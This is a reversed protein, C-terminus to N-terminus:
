RTEETKTDPKEARLREAFRVAEMADKGYFDAGIERAYDPNLVAGGVMVLVGPCERRLLRITEEMAPVTTTMLASLGVLPAGTKKVAAAVTEPSVDKGLDTVAFGFNELLLKVINKGIDHVDGKVTALVVRPGNEGAPASASAKIEEFAASAAEASMLLQPLFLTKKEFGEGVNNLAPIIEEEILTLGEREKLADRCLAAAKARMGKEVAERLTAVDGTERVASGASETLTYRTAAAIYDQFGPDRGNLARYDYWARIMRVSLPNMIAASLGADMALTFYASNIGDRDPLGYSVNSVGLSTYGNLETRIARLADLTVRAAGPSASVTMALPDFILDREDLGYTRARALIRRAVELREGATAPIGNEDLTLAIIVGGYKKALPFVAAMSEETGNVSNILAKGVYRRLAGEMAVPDSSDPQLPLDTVTQLEEILRPLLTKEDVEPTGVNVDLVAAGAEEQRVAEGLVYAFDEERLAQKLRKKGTPNIREGILVTDGGFSVTKRASAIVCRKQDTLPVPTEESLIRRLGAIYREDTGCCGGVLRAGARILSRMAACFAEPELDYVTEGNEVRPLGANPKVLVPVSAYRLYDKVIGALSDPGQSCNVGLADAGMGELVTVVTEPDAGTLLRGDTGFACSVIVPLSAGEKAAILAARAEALDNMTEIFVLDAGAEEGLAIVQRFASIVDEPDTDGLPALMRGSPGLDLGVLVDRGSCAARANAVAAFVLERLEGEAFRFRNLGFTNTLILDAGADVYSQHVRRIVEPRSLNWTEPKEGPALGARQLATGMGGDLLLFGSRIRERVTM